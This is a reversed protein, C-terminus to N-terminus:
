GGASHEAMKEVAAKADALGMGHIQRCLKIALIKEGAKALRKVDEDTPIQGIAPWLGRDRARAIQQRSSLASLAAVIVGISVVIIAVTSNM